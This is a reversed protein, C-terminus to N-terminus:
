VSKFLMKKSLFRTAALSVKDVDGTTL